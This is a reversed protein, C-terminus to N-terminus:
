SLSNANVRYLNACYIYFNQSHIEIDTKFKEEKLFPLSGFGPCSFVTTIQIPDQTHGM